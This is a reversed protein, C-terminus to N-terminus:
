QAAEQKKCRGWYVGLQTDEGGPYAFGAQYFAYDGDDNAHYTKGFWAFALDERASFRRGDGVYTEHILSNASHWEARSKGPGDFPLEMLEYVGEEGARPAIRLMFKFYPSDDKFSSPPGASPIHLASIGAHEYVTCFYDGVYADTPEALALLLGTISM